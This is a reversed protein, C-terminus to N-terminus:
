MRFTFSGRGGQASLRVAEESIRMPQRAHGKHMVALALACVCDDHSGSPASYKVGTRTVEYEFSDLESKIVGAPFRISTKQIAVALGEMLQQKSPATFKYGEVDM